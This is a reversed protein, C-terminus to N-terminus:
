LGGSFKPVVFVNSCSGAGGTSPETARKVLLEQVEKQIVPHHAM